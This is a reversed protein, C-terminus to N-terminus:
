SATARGLQWPLCTDSDPALPGRKLLTRCALIQPLPCPRGTYSKPRQVTSSHRVLKKHEASGEGDDDVGDDDVGEDDAAEGVDDDDDDDDVGGESGVVTTTLDGDGEGDGTTTTLFDGDGDGTTTTLFVGLGLSNGLTGSGQGASRTLEQNEAVLRKVACM